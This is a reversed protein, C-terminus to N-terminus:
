WILDSYFYINKSIKCIGLFKIFRNEIIKLVLISFFIKLYNRFIKYFSNQSCYLQRAITSKLDSLFQLLRLLPFTVNFDLEFLIINLPPPPLM